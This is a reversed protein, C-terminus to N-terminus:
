FERRTKRSQLDDRIGSFMGRIGVGHCRKQSSGYPALRLDNM